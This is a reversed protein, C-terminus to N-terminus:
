PLPIEASDTNITLSAWGARPLHIPCHWSPNGVSQRVERSFERRGGALLDSAIGLRDM